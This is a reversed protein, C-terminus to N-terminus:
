KYFSDKKTIKLGRWEEMSCQINADVCSVNNRFLFLILTGHATLGHTTEEWNEGNTTKIESLIILFYFFSLCKKNVGSIGFYSIPWRMRLLMICATSQTVPLAYIQVSLHVAVIFRNCPSRFASYQDSLKFKNAVCSVFCSEYGGVFLSANRSCIKM